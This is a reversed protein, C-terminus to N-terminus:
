KVKKWAYALSGILVLVLPLALYMMSASNEASRAIAAGGDSHKTNMGTDPVPVDEEEEEDEGSNDEGPDTAAAITFTTNVVRDETFIASLQHIGAGLTNLYAHKITIVTSGETLTYNDSSVEVNDVKLASFTNLPYNIKLSMDQESGAEHTRGQTWTVTGDDTPNPNPNVESEKNDTYVNLINLSRDIDDIANSEDANLEKVLKIQFYDSVDVPTALEYSNMGMYARMTGDKVFDNSNLTTSVYVDYDEFNYFNQNFMIKKITENGNSHFAFIYENNESAATPMYNGVSYINDYDSTKEVSDFVEVDFASNYSMYYKVKHEQTYDNMPTLVSAGWSNSLIFAGKKTQGNDQYELNDDWGVITMAHGTDESCVENQGDSRDIVIYNYDADNASVRDWGSHAMCNDNDFYTYVEAAGYEYVASKIAKVVTNKTASEGYIPYYIERSGTVMYKSLNSDNVENYKQKVTYTYYGGGSDTLFYALRDSSAEGTMDENYWMADYYNLNALKPDNNKLVDWFQDDRVISLPNALALHITLSNGGDGIHRVFDSEIANTYDTFADYHSNKVGTEVYAEEAPAFQYDIHKPSLNGIYEDTYKKELSSKIATTAAYLWCIGETHQNRQHEWDLNSYYAPLTIDGDRSLTKTKPTEAQSSFIQKKSNLTRDIILGGVKQESGHFVVGSESNDIASTNNLQLLSVIMATGGAIIGILVVALLRYSRKKEAKSLKQKKM